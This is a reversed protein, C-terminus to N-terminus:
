KKTYTITKGTANHTLILKNGNLIYDSSLTGMIEWVCVIKTDTYEYTGKDTSPNGMSHPTGKQEYYFTIENETFEFREIEYENQWEWTGILPNIKENVTGDNCSLLAFALTLTLLLNKM